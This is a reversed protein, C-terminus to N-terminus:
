WLAIWTPDVIVIVPACASRPWINAFPVSVIKPSGPSLEIM